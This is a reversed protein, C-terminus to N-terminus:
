CNWSAMYNQVLPKWALVKTTRLIHCTKLIVSVTGLQEQTQILLRGLLQDQAKYHRWVSTSKDELYYWQLRTIGLTASKLKSM